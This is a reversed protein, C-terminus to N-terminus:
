SADIGTRFAPNAVEELIDRRDPHSRWGLDTRTRPCRSRSCMSFAILALFRGWIREGEEFTVSRTAVGLEQAAREAMWRYCAEGSVAHYLAGSQGKELMLRFVEALDDVHVNSYLNLGAGMYCVAGTQRASDYLARIVNNFGHGWILPPRVVM